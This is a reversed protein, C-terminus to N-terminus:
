TVVQYPRMMDNDEHELIHCHWVYRGPIDFYSKIRTIEGPNARVTDKRGLENPAPRVPPGSFKIKKTANYFNVDFPQRDLVQFQVLHLHIPHTDGTLNILRWIESTNLRPKTTVPDNFHKGELLLVTPNDNADTFEELTMDRVMSERPLDPIAPLKTPMASTDESSLPRTVRFQMIEYPVIDGGDPFPAPADNGLVLVKGAYNSFDLIMDAREAPALLIETLTVPTPLFGGDNGILYFSPGSPLKLNLFRANCGNLFRFRYKRPEVELYPWVKGNVLMTDGFFEPVWIPPVPPPASQGSDPYFLQGNKDFIRDQIVLPIEFAGRPLNLSDEQADRILYFGALGAYVNLRTIGLAHDHYWLTTARQSNPYHFVKFNGPLFWDNPNGDDEPLVHGGHLHAVARSANSTAGMLTTDVPLFHKAPLDNTWKVTIPVGARAEITRAPYTGNYGWVRTKPLQSHLQQKFESMTLEYYNPTLQPMVGPIPLPDIFKTLTSPVLTDAAFPPPVSWRWPLYLSAGALASMKLFQRRTLM